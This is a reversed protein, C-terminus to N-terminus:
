PSGGALPVKFSLTVENGLWQTNSWEGTGIDYDLRNLKITGTLTQQAGERKKSFPVDLNRSKGKMQLVGHSLQADARADVSSAKYIARPYLSVAFFEKEK